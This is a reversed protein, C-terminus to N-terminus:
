DLAYITFLQLSLYIVFNGLGGSWSRLNHFTSKRSCNGAPRGHVAKCLLPYSLSVLSLLALIFSIFYVFPCPYLLYLHFTISRSMQSSSLLINSFRVLGWRVYADPLQLHDAPQFRVRFFFQDIQFSKDLSYLSFFNSSSFSRYPFIPNM